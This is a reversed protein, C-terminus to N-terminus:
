KRTVFASFEYNLGAYSVDHIQTVFMTRFRFSHSSFSHKFSGTNMIPITNPKLKHRIQTWRAKLLIHLYYAHMLLVKKKPLKSVVGTSTLFLILWFGWLFDTFVLIQTLIDWIKSYKSNRIELRINWLFIWFSFFIKLFVCIIQCNTKTQKFTM